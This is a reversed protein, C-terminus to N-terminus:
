VEMCEAEKAQLLSDIEQIFADTQKQIKELARKVEDKGLTGDKELKKVFDNSERRHNRISVKREEGQKHLHRVIEKRSEETLPAVLIRLTNGDRSPNFGLDSSRIAKEVSEIASADYVQVVILRAEPSSIQGMHTLATRTGYYDVHIGELLSASARGTRMKQLDRKFAAVSKESQDEHELLIEELDAPQQM